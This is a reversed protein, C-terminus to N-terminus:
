PATCAAPRASSESVTVRKGRVTAQAGVGVGYHAFAEWVLCADNGSSLVPATGGGIATLIGDRMDEFKPTAPTYNMGDVMYGVLDERRGAGFKTYLLWGIAGYLEGDDHVESGTIDGYTILDYGQYPQRRLGKQSSAAYEGITDAGPLSHQVTFLMACVDGMGEGIAGALPGSMGGIMRWTLGHCYEHYVIDADLDGDIRVPDGTRKRATGTASALSKIVAGDNQSVFVSSTRIGGGKGGMVLLENGGQNDAVIVAIAGALQANKVKDTFDCTGRDILAIAGSVGTIPGCGDAPAAIRITGSVGTTTLAPGFAAGEARFTQGSVVVEQNGLGTWLYMQMRPSSGDPPTAFNANDTGGGDQAEANVPDGGLGGNGFNNVQFNGAAEDFGLRYLSDHIVNNLYFLNQIAVERNATTGPAGAADYVTNFNVTRPDGSGDSQNNSVADLYARVNFGAIDTSGQSAGNLWGSPSEANGSGPGAQMTQPAVGPNVLFVGYTDNSTRLEDYIVIGNGDVLTEHLQNSAETWTMVMYGTSMVGNGHPIAVKTATPATHFFGAPVTAQNPYLDAIAAAIAQETTLSTGRVAASTSELNEVVSLLEGRANFAAKAYTGYVPLGSARQSFQVHSIGDRGSSRTGEVLSDITSEDRGQGRLFGVLIARPSATSPPTLSNGARGQSTRAPPKEFPTQAFASTALGAIACAILMSNFTKPM